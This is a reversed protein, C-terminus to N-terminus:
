QVMGTPIHFIYHQSLLPIHIGVECPKQTVISAFSSSVM